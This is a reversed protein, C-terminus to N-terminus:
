AAPPAPLELAPGPDKGDTKVALWLGTNPDKVQFEWAGTESRIARYEQSTTTQLYHVETTGDPRRIATVQWDDRTYTLDASQIGCSSLLLATLLALLRVLKM